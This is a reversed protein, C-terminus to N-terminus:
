ASHTEGPELVVVQPGLENAIETIAATRADSLTFAAHGLFRNEM